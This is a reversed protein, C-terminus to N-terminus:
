KERELFFILKEPTSAKLEGLNLFRLPFFLPTHAGRDHLARCLKAKLTQEPRKRLVRESAGEM